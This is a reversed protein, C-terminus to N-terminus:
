IVKEIMHEYVYRSNPIPKRTLHHIAGSLGEGEILYTDNRIEKIIGTKNLYASTGKITKVTDGKKM